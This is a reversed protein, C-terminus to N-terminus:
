ARGRRRTLIVTGIAAIIIGAAVGIPMLWWPWWAEEGEQDTEDMTAESITFAPSTGTKDNGDSATITVGSATATDKVLIDFSSSSLTKVNDDFSGDGNADFVMTGSSSSITVETSSDGAVVNGCPDYATVTVTFEGGVTQTYSASTVTYYYVFPPVTLNLTSYKMSKFIATENAKVGEVFFEVTDGDVALVKLM